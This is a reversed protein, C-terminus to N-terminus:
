AKQLKYTQVWPNERIQNSIKFGTKRFLNMWLKNSYFHLFGFSYALFNPLDRQHETIFMFGGSKLVRNLEKFFNLRDEEDRIEHAAFFLVIVDISNSDFPIKFSELELTPNKENQKKALKISREKQPLAKFIDVDIIESKPLKSKLVGGIEDFGSSINLIKQTPKKVQSNLFELKYLPSYDYIWYSIFLSNFILIWTTQSFVALFYLIPNETNLLLVFGVIGIGTALLYKPFNFKAVNQVGEFKKREM